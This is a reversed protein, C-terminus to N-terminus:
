EWQRLYVGTGTDWIRISAEFQDEPLPFAIKFMLTDLGGLYFLCLFTTWM